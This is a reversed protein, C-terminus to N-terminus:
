AERSSSFFFVRRTILISYLINKRVNSKHLLENRKGFWTARDDEKNKDEVEPRKREEGDSYHQYYNSDVYRCAHYM